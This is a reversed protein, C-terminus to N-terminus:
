TTGSSTYNFSGTTPNTNVNDGDDWDEPSLNLRITHLPRSGGAWDRKCHEGFEGCKPNGCASDCLLDLIKEAEEQSGEFSVSLDWWKSEPDTPRDQYTNVKAALWHCFTYLPRRIM